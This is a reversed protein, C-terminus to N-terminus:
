AQAIGVRKWLWDLQLKEPREIFRDPTEVVKELHDRPISWAVDEGGKGHELLDFTDGRLRVKFTDHPSSPDDKYVAVAFAEDGILKGAGQILQKYPMQDRHSGIAQNVVNLYQTFLANTQM